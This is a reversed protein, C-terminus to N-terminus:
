ELGERHELFGQRELIRLVGDLAKLADEDSGEDLLVRAKAGHLALHEPDRSLAEEAERLAEGTDGRAALHRVLALRAATDAPRDALVGRLLKEFDRPSGLAAYASELRPYAQVAARRDIEVLKKWAALAAKNRGKEAEVEGLRMWAMGNAPDRKVAKKLTKRAEDTEGSAHAAQAMEVLLRAEAERAGDGGLRALRRQADLALPFDRADAALRVLAALAAADKPRRGLVEQYAAIARQLFGGRRFDEALGSLAQDRHAEGLDTRLLLNQHVRIARGIEGRRRYIQALALYADVRDSDARVLDLLAEDATDLDDDLVARLAERLAELEEDRGREARRRGRTRAM